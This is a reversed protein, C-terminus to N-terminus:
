AANRLSVSSKNKLKRFLTATTWFQKDDKVNKKKPKGKSDRVIEINLHESCHSLQKAVKALPSESPTVNKTSTAQEGMNRLVDIITFVDNCKEVGKSLQNCSYTKVKSM